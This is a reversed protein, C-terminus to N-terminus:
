LPQFSNYLDLIGSTFSLNGFKLYETLFEVSKQSGDM